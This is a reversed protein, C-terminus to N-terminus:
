INLPTCGCTLMAPQGTLAEESKMELPSNIDTKWRIIFTGGAEFKRSTFPVTQGRYRGQIGTSAVAWPISSPRDLVITNGVATVVADFQHAYAAEIDQLYLKETM